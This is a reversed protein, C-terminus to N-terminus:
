VENTLLSKQQKKLVKANLPSTAPKKHELEYEVKAKAAVKGGRRVVAMHEKM